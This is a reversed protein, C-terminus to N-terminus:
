GSAPAGTINFTNGNSWKFCEGHSSDKKRLNGAPGGGHAHEEDARHPM